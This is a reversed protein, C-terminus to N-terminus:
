GEGLLARVARDLASASAAGAHSVRVRGERDVIWTHPIMGRAVLPPGLPAAPHVVPYPIALRAAISELESLPVEEAHVGLVVVGDGRYREGVSALAPIERTCPGCWSAWLNLVVIRGRYDALEHREGGPGVFVAPPALPSDAATRVRVRGGYTRWAWVVAVAVVIAVVTRARRATTSRPASM